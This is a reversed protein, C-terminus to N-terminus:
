PHMNISSLYNEIIGIVNSKNSSQTLFFNVHEPAQKATFGKSLALKIHEWYVIHAVQEVVEIDYDHSWSKISLIYQVTLNELNSSDKQLEFGAIILDSAVEKFKIRDNDTSIRSGLEKRLVTYARDSIKIAKSHLAM